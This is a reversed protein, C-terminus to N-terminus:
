QRNMVHIIQLNRGAELSLELVWEGCEREKGKQRWMRKKSRRELGM